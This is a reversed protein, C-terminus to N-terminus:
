KRFGGSSIKKRIFWLLWAAFFPRTAPILLLFGLLDSLFGPTLLLLGGAFVCIGDLISKAPVQGMAMQGKAFQWVNAAQRKTLIAGALGTLVILGFTQWGGIVQGVQILTWIELAPIVIMLVVIWRFM